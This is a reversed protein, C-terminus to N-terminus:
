INLTKELETRKQEDSYRSFCYHMIFTKVDRHGAWKMADKRNINPKNAIKTLATKRAKHNGKKRNGLEKCYREFHNDICYSTIRHTWYIFIFKGPEYSYGNRLNMEKVKNFLEM